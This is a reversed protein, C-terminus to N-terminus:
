DRPRSFGRFLPFAVWEWIRAQLIVHVSSDPLSYDMPNCFSDSTASRSVNLKCNIQLITNTRAPCCLSDTVCICIDEKKFSEKGMHTMVSYQTSNGTIYPQNKNDIKNYM